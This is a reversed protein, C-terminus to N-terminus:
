SIIIIFIPIMMLNKKEQNYLFKYLELDYASSNLFPENSTLLSSSDEYQCNKMIFVIKPLLIKLFKLDLSSLIEVLCEVNM